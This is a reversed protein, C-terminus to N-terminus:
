KLQLKKKYFSVDDIYNKAMETTSQGGCRYTGNLITKIVKANEFYLRCEMELRIKRPNYNNLNEDYQWENGQTYTFILNNHKFYYDIITICSSLYVKATIKLLAGNLYYAKLEGGGDTMDGLFEENTLTKIQYGSVKDIKQVDSRISAIKTELTQAFGIQLIILLLFTGFITKM